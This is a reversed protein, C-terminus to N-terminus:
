VTEFVLCLGLVTRVLRKGNIMVGAKSEVRSLDTMIWHSMKWAIVAHRRSIKRNNIWLSATMKKRGIVCPHNYDFSVCQGEPDELFVAM